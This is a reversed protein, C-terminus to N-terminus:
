KQCKPCFYTGRGSLSIRKINEKCKSCSEGERGYVLHRKSFSGKEGSSRVYQDISSGKHKIAERLVFNLSKLLKGSQSPKLSNTKRTPSIGSRFLAEAAYINGVGAIFSQDMLATKINTKRRTLMGFFDRPRLNFPEPGLKKFFDLDRYDDALILEGLLRQDNFDLVTKDSFKFSVRAKNGSGPYILQGSMGLRVILYFFKVKEKSLKFILAKGRRFIDQIFAGKVRENFEKHSSSRIARRKLILIDVIKKGILKPRLERKITEAEPLEPMKILRETQNLASRYAGRFIWM